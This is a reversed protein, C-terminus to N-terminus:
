IERGLGVVHPSLRQQDLAIWVAAYKIRKPHDFRGESLLRPTSLCGLRGLNIALYALHWGSKVIKAAKWWVEIVLVLILACCTFSRELATGRSARHRAM